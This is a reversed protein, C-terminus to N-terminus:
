DAKKKVYRMGGMLMICIAPFILVAAAASGAGTGSVAALLSQSWFKPITLNRFVGLYGGGLFAPPIIIGSLLIEATYFGGSVLAANVTHKFCMQVLCVFCGIGLCVLLLVAFAGASSLGLKGALATLCALPLIGQLWLLIGLALGEALPFIWNNVPSLRKRRLLVERQEEPRKFLQYISSFCLFVLLVSTGYYLVPDSEGFPSMSSLKYMDDRSLADMILVMMSDGFVADSDIGEANRTYEGIMYLANQVDGMMNGASKLGERMLMTQFPQNENLLIELAEAKGSQASEVFSEPIIIAAAIENALLKEEAKKRPVQLVNINKGLSNSQAISSVALSVLGSESEDSVAVSFATTSASEERVFRLLPSLSLLVLIPILPLIIFFKLDASYSKLELYTMRLLGM